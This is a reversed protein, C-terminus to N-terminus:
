SISLVIKLLNIIHYYIKNNSLVPNERLYAQWDFNGQTIESM